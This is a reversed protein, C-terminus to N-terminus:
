SHFDRGDHVKAVVGSRIVFDGFHEGELREKGYSMLLPRLSELIENEGINEKYLKNLREGKFGGGLYMNYKGPAKGIFAVEALAPRACGNPCGTMRITIEEEQVGAEDLLDEIKSILSPLYRESEAMALGCTPFAVHWLTEVYDLITRVMQLVMSILSLKSKMKKEPTVNAIVLNQNPSLRFDGTHMEAIERLATKLKYDETDKVRGNQIFLTFNWNGNGEIWGLRDGNHEFEFDRADEIDWRISPEIRRQGM